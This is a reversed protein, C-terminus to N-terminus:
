NRHGGGRLTIRLQLWIVGRNRRVVADTLRRYVHEFWRLRNEKMEDKIPKVGVMGRINRDQLNKGRMPKNIDISHEM